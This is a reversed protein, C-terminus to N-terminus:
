DAFELMEILKDRDWLLVGTKEALEKGGATFYRNTMVAAVQCGYMAKGAYVEQVPKNGLDSSYCKCQVAYRIGDKTALVDVGQDGSGQTVEVDTYSNKKLLDACWYEFDHGEMGDAEAITGAVAEYERLTNLLRRGKELNDKSLRNEYLNIHHEFLLSFAKGTQKTHLRFKMYIDFLRSSVHIEENTKIEKLAQKPKPNLYSYKGLLSQTKAMKELHQLLEDRAAFYEELDEPDNMKNNLDIIREYNNIMYTQAFFALVALSTLALFFILMAWYYVEKYASFIKLLLMIDLGLTIIVWTLNAQEIKPKQGM